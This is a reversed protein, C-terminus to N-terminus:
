FRFYIFPKFSKNLLSAFSLVFLIIIICQKIWFTQLENIRNKFKGQLKTVGSDPFFSIFSAIFLTFINRNNILDDLMVNTSIQNINTFDFIRQLYQFAFTINDSRFIVWGIMVLIFTLSINIVKSLWKFREGWFMKVCRFKSFNCSHAIKDIFLFFGHYIGWVIFTWNAGHWLGSILFVVWLNLYNRFKSVRNGGLPIYLYEKFWNSLSIHWRRWFESFNQSIYPRNFNEQFTFGLIKGIGIAMDSYGAFDFYIQFTYCTMGLWAYGVTISSFDLQFVKDAVEALVDAILVKKAFGVCFRFLGDFIDDISNDHGKLQTAINHYRIIPGMLLKPFLAIYMAYNLFNDSPEAKGSYVDIVYSIKHFTFFSVGIPFIVNEWVLPNFHFTELIKNIEYIFFNSYKFYILVTINGIVSLALIINQKIKTRSNYLYKVLIFDIVTTIFLVIAGQPSSWIYFLYSALLIIM